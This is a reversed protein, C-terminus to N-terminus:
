MHNITEQIQVSNSETRNQLKVASQNIQVNLNQIQQIELAPLGYSEVNITSAQSLYSSVNHLGQVTTYSQNVVYNFTSELENHFRAQGWYLLYCGGRCNM